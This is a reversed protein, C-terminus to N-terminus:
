SLWDDIVGTVGIGTTGPGNCSLHSLLTDAGTGRSQETVGVSFALRFTNDVRVTASVLCTTVIVAIVGTSAEATAICLTLDPIVRREAGAQWSVNAISQNLTVSGWWHLWDGSVWTVGIWTTLIGNGPGRTPPTEASTRRTELAVGKDDALRFACYVAVTGASECTDALFAFIGTDVVVLTADVGYALDVVVPAGADTRGSIFSIGVM